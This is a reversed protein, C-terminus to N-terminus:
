TSKVRYIVHTNAYKDVDKKKRKLRKKRNKKRKPLPSVNIKFISTFWFILIYSLTIESYAWNLM